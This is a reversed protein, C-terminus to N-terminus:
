RPVAAGCPGARRAACAPMYHSVNGAFIRNYMRNGICILVNKLVIIDSSQQLLKHKLAPIGAAVLEDETRRTLYWLVQSAAGQIDIDAPEDFASVLCPLV